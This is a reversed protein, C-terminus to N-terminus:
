ENEVEVWEDDGYNEWFEDFDDDRYSNKFEQENEPNEFYELYDMLQLDYVNLEQLLPHHLPVGYIKSAKWLGKIGQNM